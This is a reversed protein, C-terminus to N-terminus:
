ESGVTLHIARHLCEQAESLRQMGADLEARVDAGASDGIRDALERLEVMHEGVHHYMYELYVLNKDSGGGGGAHGMDGDMDHVHGHDMHSWYRTMGVGM